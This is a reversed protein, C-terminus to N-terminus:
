LTDCARLLTEAYTFAATRVSSKTFFFLWSVILVVSVISSATAPEPMRSFATM